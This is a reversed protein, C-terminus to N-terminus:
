AGAEPAIGLDFAIFSDDQVAACIGHAKCACFPIIFVSVRVSLFLAIILIRYALKRARFDADCAVYVFVTVKVPVVASQCEAVDHIDRLICLIDFIKDIVANDHVKCTHYGIRVHRCCVIDLFNVECCVSKRLCNHQLSVSALSMVGRVRLVRVNRVPFAAHFSELFQDPDSMIVACLDTDM